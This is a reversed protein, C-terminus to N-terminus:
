GMFWPEVVPRGNADTKRYDIFKRKFALERLAPTLAAAVGFGNKEAEPHDQWFLLIEKVGFSINKKTSQELIELLKGYNKTHVTINEGFQPVKEVVIKDPPSQRRVTQEITSGTAPAADKELNDIVGNKRHSHMKSKGRKSESKNHNNRRNNRFDERLLDARDRLRRSRAGNQQAVFPPPDPGNLPGAAAATAIGTGAHSAAPRAAGTSASLPVLSAATAANNGPHDPYAVPAGPDFHDGAEHDDLVEASYFLREDLVRRDYHAAKDNNRDDAAGVESTFPHENISRGVHQSNNYLPRGYLAPDDDEDFPPDVLGQEEASRTIDLAMLGAEAHDAEVLTTTAERRGLSLSAASSAPAAAAKVATGVRSSRSPRAPQHNTHVAAGASSSSSTSLVGHGAAERSRSTGGTWAGRGSSSIAASPRGGAPQMLLRSSSSSSSSAGSSKGAGKRQAVPLQLRRSSAIGQRAAQESSAANGSMVESAARAEGSSATAGSPGLDGNRRDSRERIIPVPRHNLAGLISGTIRALRTTQLTRDEDNAHNRVPRGQEPRNAAGASNAPLLRRDGEEQRQALAPPEPGYFDLSDLFELEEDSLLRDSQAAPPESSVSESSSISNARRARRMLDREVERGPLRSQEEPHYNDLVPDFSARRQAHTGRDSEAALMYNEDANHNRQADQTDDGSAADDHNDWPPRRRHELASTGSGRSPPYNYGSQSAGISTAGSAPGVRSSSSASGNGNRRNAVVGDVVEVLRPDVEHSSSASAARHLNQNTGVDDFFSSDAERRSAERQERAVEALQADVEKLALAAARAKRLRSDEHRGRSRSPGREGYSRCRDIIRRRRERLDAAVAELMARVPRREPANGTSTAGVDNHERRNERLDGRRARGDHAGQRPPPQEPDIQHSLLNYPGQEYPYAYDDELTLDDHATGAAPPVMGPVQNHPPMTNHLDNDWANIDRFALDIAENRDDLTARDHEQRSHNYNRTAWSSENGNYLTAALQQFQSSTVAGSTWAPPAVGPRNDPAAHSYAPVRHDRMSSKLFQKQATHDKALQVLLEYDLGKFCLVATHLKLVHNFTRPVGSNQKDTYTITVTTILKDPSCYPINTSTDAVAEDSVHNEEDPPKKMATTATTDGAAKAAVVHTLSSSSSAGAGTAKAARNKVSQYGPVGPLVFRSASGPLNNGSTSASFGTSTKDSFFSDDLPKASLVIDKIEFCDEKGPWFKMWPRVECFEHKTPDLCYSQFKNLVAPKPANENFRIDNKNLKLDQPIDFTTVECVLKQLCSGPFADVEQIAECLDLTLLFTGHGRDAAVRRPGAGGFRQESKTFDALRQSLFENPPPQHFEALRKNDDEEGLDAQKANKKSFDSTRQVKPKETEIELEVQDQHSCPPISKIATCVDDVGAQQSLDTGKVEKVEASSTRGTSEEVVTRKTRQSDSKQQENEKARALEKMEEDHIFPAKQGAVREAEALMEQKKKKNKEMEVLLKKNQYFYQNACDLETNRSSIVRFAHWINIRGDLGRNMSATDRRQFLSLANNRSSTALPASTTLNQNIKGSDNISNSTASAAYNTNVIHDPQDDVRINFGFRTKTGYEGALFQYIVRLLDEPFHMTIYVSKASTGSKNALFEDQAKTSLKQFEGLEFQKRKEFCVGLANVAMINVMATAKWQMQNLKEEKIKTRKKEYDLENEKMAAQVQTQDEKNAPTSSSLLARQFELLGQKKTEFDNKAQFYANSCRRSAKKQLLLVTKSYTQPFNNRREQHPIGSDSDDSTDEEPLLPIIPAVVDQSPKTQSAATSAAAASIVPPTGQDHQM